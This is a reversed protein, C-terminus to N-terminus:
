KTVQIRAKANNIAPEQFIVPTDYVKTEMIKCDMWSPKKPPDLPTRFFTHMAVRKADEDGVVKAPEDSIKVVYEGDVMDLKIVIQLAPFKSDPFDNTLHTGIGLTSGILGRCFETLAIGSDVNLNDSFNIKKTIPAIKIKKLHDVIKRTFVYPDGSDHRISDFLGAFYNDFDNLFADTGFTDPLVTGLKCKYVDTWRQMAFRNAHRLSELVSIAMPWEHGQTGLAKVNNKMALYVNSTGVFNPQFHLAYTSVVTEQTLSSRRRRTGFDAWTCGANKLREGKHFIRLGQGEYDWDKGVIEFYTESILALLPVEWLITDGWLGDIEIELDGDETLRITLQDPDFRYNYLYSLYTPKFFPYKEALYNKEEKTLFLAAMDQIGEKLAVLFEPTFKDTKRRNYFRYKVRVNPYLELVAQQMTLKYFDTDLISRIIPRRIM